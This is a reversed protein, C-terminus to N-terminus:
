PAVRPENRSAVTRSEGERHLQTRPQGETFGPGLRGVIGLVPLPESPFKRYNVPLHDHRSTLNCPEFVFGGDELCPEPAIEVFGHGGMGYLTRHLLQQNQSDRECKNGMGMCCGRLTEVEHSGEVERLRDVDFAGVSVRLELLVDISDGPQEPRTGAPACTVTM